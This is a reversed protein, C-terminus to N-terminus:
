TIKLTILRGDANPEPLIHMYRWLGHLKSVMTSTLNIDAGKNQKKYAMAPDGVDFISEDLDYFDDLGQTLNQPIVWNSFITYEEADEPIGLLVMITHKWVNPLTPVSLQNAPM